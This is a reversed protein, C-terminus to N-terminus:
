LSLILPTHARLETKNPKISDNRYIPYVVRKSLSQFNSVVQVAILQLRIILRM